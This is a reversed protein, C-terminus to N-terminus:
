RGASIGATLEHHLRASSATHVLTVRDGSGWWVHGGYKTRQGPEGLLRTLAHACQKAFHAAPKRNGSVGIKLQHLSGHRFCVLASTGFKLPGDGLDPGVFVKGGFLQLDQNRASYANDTLPWTGNILKGIIGVRTFIGNMCAKLWAEGDLKDGLGVPIGAVELGLRVPGPLEQTM